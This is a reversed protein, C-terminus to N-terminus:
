CSTTLACDTNVIQPRQQYIRSNHLTKSLTPQRKQNCIRGILDHLGLKGKIGIKEKILVSQINVIHAFTNVAGSM